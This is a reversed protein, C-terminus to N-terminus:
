LQRRRVHQDWVPTELRTAFRAVKLALKLSEGIVLLIRPWIIAMYSNLQVKDILRTGKIEGRTLTM